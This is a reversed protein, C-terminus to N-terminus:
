RRMARRLANEIARRFKPAAENSFTKTFLRAKNGPHHVEDKSVFSGRSRGDGQGFKAIPATRASYGTRFFLKGGRRRPRIIHPETGRDVYGWIEAEKKRRKDVKVEVSMFNAKIILKPIFRPKNSWERTVEQHRRVLAGGTSELVGRAEARFANDKRAIAQRLNSRIVRSPM